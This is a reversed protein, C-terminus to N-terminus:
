AIELVLQGGEVRVPYSRVPKIAPGRRVEGTRVDFHSGHWPCNVVFEQVAGKDLPGGVHTCKADIAYLQGAVNFVAIERGQTSVRVAAGPPPVAVGPVPVSAM